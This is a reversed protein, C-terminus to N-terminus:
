CKSNSYWKYIYNTMAVRYATNLYWGDFKYALDCTNYNLFKYLYNLRDERIGYESRYKEINKYYYYLDDNKESFSWDIKLFKKKVENLFIEQRKEETVFEAVVENTNGM